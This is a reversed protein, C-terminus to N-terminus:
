KMRYKLTQEGIMKLPDSPTAPTGLNSVDLGLSRAIELGVQLLVRMYAPDSPNLGAARLNIDIQKLQGTKVMLDLEQNIKKLEAPNKNDYTWAKQMVDRIISSTEAQTKANQLRQAERQMEFKLPYYKTEMITKALEAQAKETNAITYQNKLKMEAIKTDRLEKSLNLDFGKKDNDILAGLYRVNNLNTQSEIYAAQKEMNTQQAQKIKMDYMNSLANGVMNGIEPIPLPAVQAAKLDPTKADAQKIMGATTQAGSGYVLNPNLGAERLRQMQQLPSNYANQRNWDELSWQRNLANTERTFDINRQNIAEQAQINQRNANAQSQSGLISSLISGGVQALALGTIPDIM